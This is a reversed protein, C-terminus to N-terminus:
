SILSPVKRNLFVAEPSAQILLWSEGWVGVWELILARDPVGVVGSSSHPRGGGGSWPPEREPFGCIVTSFELWCFFANPPLALILTFSFNGSLFWCYYSIHSSCLFYVFLPQAGVVMRAEQFFLLLSCLFAGIRVRFFFFINLLLLDCLLCASSCIKRKARLKVPIKQLGYTM